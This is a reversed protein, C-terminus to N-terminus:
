KEQSNMQFSFSELAVKIKKHRCKSFKRCTYPQYDSSLFYSLFLPFTHHAFSEKFFLHCFFTTTDDTANALVANPSHDFVFDKLCRKKCNHNLGAAKLQHDNLIIINVFLIAFIDVFVLSLQQIIDISYITTIELGLNGRESSPSSSKATSYYLLGLIFCAM